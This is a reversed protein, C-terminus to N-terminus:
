CLCKPIKISLNNRKKREEDLEGGEEREGRERRAEREENGEKQKKSKKREERQKGKGRDRVRLVERFARYFHFAPGKWDCINKFAQTNIVTTHAHRFAIKRTKFSFTM